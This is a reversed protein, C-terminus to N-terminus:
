VVDNNVVYFQSEFRRKASVALTEFSPVSLDFLMETVSVIVFFLKVFENYHSRFEHISGAKYSKWLVIDAITLIYFVSVSLDLYFSKSQL